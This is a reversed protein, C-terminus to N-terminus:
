LLLSCEGCNTVHPSIKVITVAAATKQLRGYSSEQVKNAKGTSLTRLSNLFHTCSDLHWCSSKAVSLVILSNRFFTALSRQLRAMLATLIM